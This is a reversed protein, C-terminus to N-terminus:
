LKFREKKESLFTIEDFLDREEKQSKLDIAPSPFSILFAAKM